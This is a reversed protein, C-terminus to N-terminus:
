AGVIFGSKAAFRWDHGRAAVVAGRDVARSRGTRPAQNLKRSPM